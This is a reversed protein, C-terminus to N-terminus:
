KNMHINIVEDLVSTDIFKKQSFNYANTKMTEIKNKDDILEKIKDLIDKNSNIKICASNEIMKNFIDEWNFIEPGTLIACKHNAPEIPNHGGSPIFSGGLIVIDSLAFYKTLIGFSNVIIIKKNDYNNESELISSLNFKKCLTIIEQAREPHRPAIIIQIDKNKSIIDKIQLLILDEENKHTSALM